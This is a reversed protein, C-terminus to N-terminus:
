WLELERCIRSDPHGRNSGLLWWLGQYEIMAADIIQSDMVQSHLDWHLPYDRAVYLSLGQPSQHAEPLMYMQLSLLCCVTFGYSIAHLCLREPHIGLNKSCNGM